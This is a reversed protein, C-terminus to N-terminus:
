CVVLCISEYVFKYILCNKDLGGSTYIYDDKKLNDPVHVGTRGIQVCFWVRSCVARLATRQATMPRDGRWNGTRHKTPTCRAGRDRTDPSRPSPTQQGTAWGNRPKWRSTPGSATTSRWAAASTSSVASTHARTQSSSAPSVSSTPSTAGLWKWWRHCSIMYKHTMHIHNM